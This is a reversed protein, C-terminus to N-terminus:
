FSKFRSHIRRRGKALGNSCSPAKLEEFRGLAVSSLRSGSTSRTVQYRDGTVKTVFWGYNFLPGERGKRGEHLFGADSGYHGSGDIEAVGIWGTKGALFRRGLEDDFAQGL